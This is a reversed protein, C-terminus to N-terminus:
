GRRGLRARAPAREVGLDGIAARGVDSAVLAPAGPRDPPPTSALSSDAAIQRISKRNAGVSRRPSGGPYYRRARGSDLFRAMAEGASALVKRNMIFRPAKLSFVFGDPTEDHWKIFTAPKQLGYYTGNVEISTVQRSAYQLEKTQATGKPFFVGRWPEFTWGGIGARIM